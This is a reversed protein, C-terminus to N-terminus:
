EGLVALWGDSGHGPDNPSQNPMVIRAALNKRLKSALAFPITPSTKAPAVIHNGAAIEADFVQRLEPCLRELHLPDIMRLMVDEVRSWTFGRRDAVPKEM